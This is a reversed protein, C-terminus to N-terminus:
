TRLRLHYSKPRTLSEYGVRSLTCGRGSNKVGTWALAPDLYDCRNMFWTGTEVQDGIAIAAHPDGTWIAATLGYESDNMLRVAEEDGSVKMIGIVPAFSEETMLRMGHNVDVLVRPAMYPTGPRDAPFSAPDVLSRAGQAIAEDVQARAFEAARTRVMPGLNVDARTPDGLNYSGTLKVFGDVFDDYLAAHVYIREIGCCSQGSNFFAGDVLNEVAHALDADHRVYAPDKGGLELGANIFRGAAAQVVAHGGAVSGTFAVFDVGDSAIMAAAQDHSCHVYQFVGAPLGAARFAEDFREACLPTQNSHKLIVANGALIAPVVANVSTLYPYNWPAMVLVVGLPERRIFRRFGEKPGPDVDALAVEAIAAMHRAREEFGRVEGPSQSIPRGIQWTIEEAISAKQAVFADVFRHVAAIRESLPVRRWSQQASRARKLAAHIQADTALPREVYVRGDVPSITKQLM